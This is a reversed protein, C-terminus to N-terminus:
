KAIEIEGYRSREGVSISLRRVATAICINWDSFANKPVNFDKISKTTSGIRKSSVGNLRERM